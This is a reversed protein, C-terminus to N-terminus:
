LKVIFKSLALLRAISDDAPRPLGNEGGAGRYGGRRDVLVLWSSAAIFGSLVDVGVLTVAVEM